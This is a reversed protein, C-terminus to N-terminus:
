VGIAITLQATGNNNTYFKHPTTSTDVWCDGNVWNAPVTSQSYINGAVATRTVLPM